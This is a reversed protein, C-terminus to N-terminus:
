TISIDKAYSLKEWRSVQGEWCGRQRGTELAVTQDDFPSLDDIIVLREVSVDVHLVTNDLLHKRDIIVVTVWGAATQTESMM